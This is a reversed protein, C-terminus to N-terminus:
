AAQHPKDVVLAAVFLELVAQACKAVLPMRRGTQQRPKKAHKHVAPRHLRLAVPQRSPPSPATPVQRLRSPLLRLLRMNHPLDMNPKM